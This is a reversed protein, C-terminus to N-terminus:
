KAKGPTAAPLPLLTELDPIQINELRFTGATDFTEPAITLGTAMYWTSMKFSTGSKEEWFKLIAQVNVPGNWTHEKRFAYLQIFHPERWEATAVYCDYPVPDGPTTVTGIFKGTKAVDKNTHTVIYAEYSTTMDYDKWGPADALNFKLGFTYTSGNPIIMGTGSWQVNYNEVMKNLPGSSKGARGIDPIWNGGGPTWTSSFSGGQGTFTTDTGSWSRFGTAGKEPSQSWGFTSWGDAFNVVWSGTKFGDAHAPRTTTVLTTMGVTTALLLKCLSNLYRNKMNPTNPLSHLARSFINGVIVAM